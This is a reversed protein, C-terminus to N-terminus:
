KSNIAATAEAATKKAFLVDLMYNIREEANSFKNFNFNNAAKYNVEGVRQGEHFAELDAQSLYLALDWKWYGVYELTVKDQDHKSHDPKVQYIYGNSSLWKQITELFGEKTESDKIIVIEPKSKLTEEAISNGKYSPASCASVVSVVALVLLLRIFKM